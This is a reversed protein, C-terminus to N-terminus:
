NLEYNREGTYNEELQITQYMVHSDEIERILNILEPLSKNSEFVVAVDPYVKSKITEIINVDLFNSLINIDSITDARLKYTM